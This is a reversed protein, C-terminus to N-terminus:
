KEDLSMLVHSKGCRELSEILNKKDNYMKFKEPVIKNILEIVPSLDEQYYNQIQVQKTIGNKTFRYVKIDGDAICPNSYLVGLSDLTIKSLERIEKRPLDDTEYLISDKENELEGRFTITLKKETLRYLISYALSYDYDTVSLEFPEIPDSKCSCLISAILTFILIQTNKM